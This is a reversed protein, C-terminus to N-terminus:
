PRLRWALNPGAAGGAEAIWRRERDIEPAIGSPADGLSSLRDVGRRVSGGADQFEDRWSQSVLRNPREVGRDLAEDFAQMGAYLDELAADLRRLYTREPETCPSESEAISQPARSEERAQAAGETSETPASRARAAPPTPTDGGGCSIMSLCLAVLAALPLLGIWRIRANTM